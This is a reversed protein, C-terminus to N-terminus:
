YCGPKSVWLSEVKLRLWDLGTFQCVGTPYPNNPYFFRAVPHDAVQKHALITKTEEPRLQEEPQQEADDKYFYYTYRSNTSKTEVTTVNVPHAPVQYSNDSRKQIYRYPYTEQAIDLVYGRVDPYRAPRSFVRIVKPYPGWQSTYTLGTRCGCIRRGDIELFGDSCGLPENGLNFFKFSITLRCANPSRYIQYICDATPNQNSPFGPSVLYFRRQTFINRCCQPLNPLVPGPLVPPPPIDQRQPHSSNYSDDLELESDRNPFYGPPYGGLSNTGGGNNPINPNSPYGPNTPYNSGPYSPTGSSPYGPYNPYPSPYPMPYNPYPPYSSGPYCPNVPNSTTPPYSPYGPYCNPYFPCQQPCVNQPCPSPTPPPLYGTTGPNFDPPIDQRNSVQFTKQPFYPDEPVTTPETTEDSVQITTYVTYSTSSEAVENDECPQRTVIIRFGREAKWGDTVFKVKLIGNTSNYRKSGLVTGCLEEENGIVLRDKYCDRSHELAFDLFQVHYQSNCVYPSKFTYECRLNNDYNGPYGPSAIENQLRKFVGGCEVSSRESAVNGSIRSYNEDKEVEEFLNIMRFDEDGVVALGVNAVMWVACFKWISNAILM